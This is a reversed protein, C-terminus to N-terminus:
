ASLWSLSTLVAQKRDLNLRETEEALRGLKDWLTSWEALSRAAVWNAPAAGRAAQRTGAALGRRLLAAFTVFAGADRRGTIKEAIVHAQRPDLRPLAGLVQDVLAQLELGGGEALALARGPSGEAMGALMRRDGGELAPLFDQLLRDMSTADLPFLDLRRCRSRITPLLRGIASCTLLLVARPPPEELAKLIANQAVTNMTEAGDVVVVRWGGEAATLSMFGPILRAADANIDDRKRDGRLTDSDVTLMDAHGSAAVRRFVPSDPPLFLPAQGAIAAPQGALLWRAFRFALTAKGIGPPGTVLWAHHLRGARAAEELTRGAHDHGLLLPNERPLPALSVIAPEEAESSPRKAM